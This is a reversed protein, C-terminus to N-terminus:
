GLSFAIRGGDLPLVPLLNFLMMVSNALVAQKLFAEGLAHQLMPATLVMIAFYNGIPGAAAILAGRWGKPPVNGQASTILGGFPAIEIRDFREGLCRGVLLHSSEHVALAIIASLCADVSAFLAITLLYAVFSARVTLRM